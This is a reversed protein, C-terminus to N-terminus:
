LNRMALMSLGDLGPFPGQAPAGPDPTTNSISAKALGAKRSRWAPQWDVDLQEVEGAETLQQCVNIVRQEPAALHRVLEALTVDQGPRAHIYIAACARLAIGPTIFSSM